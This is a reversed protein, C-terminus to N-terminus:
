STIPYATVFRPTDEGEAIVWVSRVTLTTFGGGPTRLRGEIKYNTGYPHRETETVSHSTAHERLVEAFFEWAPLRFGRNIFYAAKPGGEEHEPDLLYATLKRKPVRAEEAHPLQVLLHTRERSYTQLNSRAPM